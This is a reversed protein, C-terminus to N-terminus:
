PAASGDAFSDFMSGQVPRRRLGVLGAMAARAILMAPGVLLAVADERAKEGSEGAIAAQLATLSRPAGGRGNTRGVHAAILNSDYSVEVGQGLRHLVDCFAPFSPSRPGMGLVHLAAPKSTRLFAELEFLPMADKNGPIARVYGDFGLADSCAADFSATSLAGRQLPVVVRAGLSHLERMEASFLSMRRLTEAQDGVCDPAVCYAMPGLARAIRLEVALREKWVADSIRAVVVPRGNIIDVEGFAGTDVFVQVPLGALREIELIAPASLAPISVGIPHLWRALGRLDAPASSGSAFYIHGMTMWLALDFLPAPLEASM